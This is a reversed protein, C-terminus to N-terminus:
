QDGNGFGIESPKVVRSLNYFVHYEGIQVEDFSVGISLFRKSIQADLVPHKTTIYTVKPSADVIDIYPAYRNDRATYSLDAKYPLEASFILKEKSLFAIRFSVWYNSFGRTENQSYLFDILQDDYSNDFSTIPNFQTTLKDQEQSALWIGSVNFTMLFGLTIVGMGVNIKWMRSIIISSCLVLISYLPLLYRGTPDVGFRTLILLSIIVLSVVSFLPLVGSESNIERKRTNLLLSGFIFLYFILGIGVFLFPFYDGSWPMRLGLLAPISFLSIGFVRDILSPAPILGGTIESFALWSNSINYLWWPISGVIFGGFALLYHKILDFKFKWLGILGVSLIYVGAIGLVWFAFGGILGLILWTLWSYQKEGFIVDYGFLLIINGLVISEGYGGLTATTYTTVMVPPISAIFVAINAILKDKFFRKAMIWLTIMNALYLSTQVVRIAFVKEGLVKFAAALLWADLSGMYAQGYFFVPREGQLIHRGMLAVVAEDGNFPILEALTLVMKISIAILLALGLPLYNKLKNMLDTEFIFLYV